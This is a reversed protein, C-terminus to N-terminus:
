KIKRAFNRAYTQVRRSEGAVGKGQKAKAVCTGSLPFAAICCLSCLPLLLM